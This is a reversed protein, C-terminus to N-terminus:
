RSSGGRLGGGGFVHDPDGARRESVPPVGEALVFTRRLPEAEGDYSVEVTWTGPSSLIGQIDQTIWWWSM